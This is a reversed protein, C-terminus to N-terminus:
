SVNKTFAMNTKLYIRQLSGRQESWDNRTFIRVKPRDRATEATWYYKAFRKNKNKNRRKSKNKKNFLGRSQFLTIKSLGHVLLYM